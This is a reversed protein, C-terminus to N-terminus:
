RYEGTKVQSTKKRPDSPRPPDHRIRRLEELNGLLETFPWRFAPLYKTRLSISTLDVLPCVLRKHTWRGLESPHHRVRRGVGAPPAAPPADLSFELAFAPGRKLTLCEVGPAQATVTALRCDEYLLAQEGFFDGRRLTNVRREGEGDAERKSVVVTGGRIIYFKDGKDGQRVIATGASFFEQFFRAGRPRGDLNQRGFSSHITRTLDAFADAGIFSAHKLRKLFESIKSLEIPHIDRLLPVSSLFRINDEQEQRGSRVMIKQFVRRELMWVKAETICRISAFRKAKYLIALEGFAEGPGFTKVVQGNKLVEFQGYASVFLHSGTEGERVILNGASYQQPSMADVVASLREQDMLNRLFDNALVARSIQEQSQADKEYKPYTLDASSRASDLHVPTAYVRPRKRHADVATDVQLFDSVASIVPPLEISSKRVYTPEDSNKSISSKASEYSMRSSKKSAISVSLGTNKRSHSPGNPHDDNPKPPKFDDQLIQM